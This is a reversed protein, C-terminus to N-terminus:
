SISREIAHAHIRAVSDVNYQDINQRRFDSFSKEESLNNCYDNMANVLAPEDGPPVLRGLRRDVIIDSPGFECDTSIVPLGCRLAECIALSWGEWRSTAVFIDSSYLARQPNEPMYELSIVDSLGLHCIQAKLSAEDIGHGVLRLRIDQRRKYLQSFASILIDQGKQYDYRGVNVFTVLGPPPIEDPGPPDFTRVPNPVWVMPRRCGFDENFAKLQLPSTGFIASIRLLVFNKMIFFLVKAKFHGSERRPNGHLHMAIRQNLGLCSFWFIVTPEIQPVVVLDYFKTRVVSRFAKILGLRSVVHRRVINYEQPAAPYNRHESVLLVDVEFKDRHKKALETCITDVVREIGAFSKTGPQCYLIKLKRDTEDSM